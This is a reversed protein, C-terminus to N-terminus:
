SRNYNYFEAMHQSLRQIKLYEGFPLSFRPTRDILLFPEWFRTSYNSTHVCRWTNSPIQGSEAISFSAEINRETLSRIMFEVPLYNKGEIYGLSVDCIEQKQLFIQLASPQLPSTISNMVKNHRIVDFEYFLYEREKFPKRKLGFWFDSVERQEFLDCHDYIWALMKSALSKHFNDFQPFFQVFSFSPFPFVLFLIYYIIQSFGWLSYAPSSERLQSCRSSITRGKYRYLSISAAVLLLSFLM